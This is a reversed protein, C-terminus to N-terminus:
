LKELIIKTLLSFSSEDLILQDYCEGVEIGILEIKDPLVNMISGMQLAEAVGASHSSLNAPSNLLKEKSIESIKGAVGGAVADILIVHETDQFYELLAVGPRDLSLFKLEGFSLDQLARDAKLGEVVEWGVRDAGFPSGIGIISLATM